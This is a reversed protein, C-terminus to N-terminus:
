LGITWGNLYDRAVSAANNGLGGDELLVVFAYQPDEYPFFGVNWAHTHEYVGGDLLVGYEATGTKGAVSFPLYRLPWVFQRNGAVAQRMGQRVVSLSYDSSINTHLPQYVPITEYGHTDVLKTVIHPKHLTGGNAIASVWNVAQIPTVLTIGQGIVSNCADGEEYWVPDLWPSTTTALLIKNEPSPLRGSMEGPLDIGTYEGIGFNELYPVLSDMDWNRITECFFINSSVEMANRVDLWGWSNRAYEYFGAGNSFSYDSSSYYMTGENIVGADLAASAVITKFISGPPQQEGVTRDFLPLRSDNVLVGYDEESIGNVFLNNDYSPYSVIAIIEGTKVNEVIAAGGSAGYAEVGNKLANYLREQETKIISTYLNQGDKSDELEVSMQSALNTYADVEVAMQGKAGFLEEDYEYELGSRGLSDNIDIYEKTTLDEATVKSTYGLLHSFAEGTLYHRTTVNDVYMADLGSLSSKVKIAMDNDLSSCIMLEQYYSYKDLYDKMKDAISTYNEDTKLAYTAWNEGLIEQLKAGNEEIKQTNVTGDDNLYEDVIILVRYSPVNEVLKEGNADFIVGRDPYVTRVQLQNNKARESLERAQVVQLDIMRICLVIFVLALIVFAYTSSWRQTTREEYSFGQFFSSSQSNGNLHKKGKAPLGKQIDKQLKKSFKLAM